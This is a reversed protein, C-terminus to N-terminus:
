RAFAAGKWACRRVQADTRSSLGKQSSGVAAENTAQRPEYEEEREVAGEAEEEEEDESGPEIDPSPAHIARHTVVLCGVKRRWPGVLCESLVIQNRRFSRGVGQTRAFGVSVDQTAAAPKGGRSEQQQKEV